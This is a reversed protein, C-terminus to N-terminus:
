LVFLNLQWNPYFRLIGPIIDVILDGGLHIQQDFGSKCQNAESLAYQIVTWLENVHTLHQISTIFFATYTWSLFELFQLYNGTASQDYIFQLYDQSKKKKTKNWKKKEFNCM